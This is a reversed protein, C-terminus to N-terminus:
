DGQSGWAIGTPDSPRRVLSSRGYFFPRTRVPTSGTDLLAVLDDRVLVIREGGLVVESQSVFEYPPPGTFWAPPEKACDSRHAQAVRRVSSAGQGLIVRV